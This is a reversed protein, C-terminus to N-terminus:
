DFLRNKVPFPFIALYILDERIKDFIMGFPFPIYTTFVGSTESPNEQLLSLIFNVVSSIIKGCNSEAPCNDVNQDIPDADAWECCDSPNPSCSGVGTWM